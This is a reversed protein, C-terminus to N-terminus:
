KHKNPGRLKHVYFYNKKKKKKNAGQLKHVDLYFQKNTSIQAKHNIVCRSLLHKNKNTSIEPKQTHTKKTNKQAHLAKKFFLFLFKLIPRIVENYQVVRKIKEEWKKIEYIKNKIKNTRM